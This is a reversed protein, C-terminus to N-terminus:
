EITGKKKGIWGLHTHNFSDFHKLGYGFVRDFNSHALFVLGCMSLYDIHLFYGALFCALLLGKHHLLNYCIAGAKPNLLYALMSLDPLFFAALYFVYAGEYFHFFVLTPLFFLALEELLLLTRM